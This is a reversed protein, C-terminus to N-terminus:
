RSKPRKADRESLKIQTSFDEDDVEFFGDSDVFFAQTAFGAAIANITVRLGTFKALSRPEGRLYQVIFGDDTPRDTCQIAYYDGAGSCMFPFWHAGWLDSLEKTLAANLSVSRELSLLYYGPFLWMDELTAEGERTGNRWGYLDTIAVPLVYPFRSTAAAIAQPSIGPNLLQAIQHRGMKAHYALIADLSQSISMEGIRDDSGVNFLKTSLRELKYSSGASDYLTSLTRVLDVSSPKGCREYFYGSIRTANNL